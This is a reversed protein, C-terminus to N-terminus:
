NNIVHHRCRNMDATAVFLSYSGSKLPKIQVLGRKFLGMVSGRIASESMTYFKVRLGRFTCGPHGHIYEMYRAQSRGVSFAGNPNDSRTAEVSFKATEEM